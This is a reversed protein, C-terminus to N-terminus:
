NVVNFHFHVGAHIASNGVFLIGFRDGVPIVMYRLESHSELGFTKEVAKIANAKSAYTKTFEIEVLRAM